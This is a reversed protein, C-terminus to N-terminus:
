FLKSTITTTQIAELNVPITRNQSKRFWLYHSKMVLYTFLHWHGPHTINEQHGFSRVLVTKKLGPLDQKRHAATFLFHLM